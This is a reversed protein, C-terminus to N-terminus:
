EELRRRIAAQRVTLRLAAIKAVQGHSTSLVGIMALILFGLSALTLYVAKRGHSAPQM